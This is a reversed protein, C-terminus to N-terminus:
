LVRKLIKRKEWRSVPYMIREAIVCEITSNWCFHTLFMLWSRVSRGSPLYFFIEFYRRKSFIFRYTIGHLISVPHDIKWSIPWRGVSGVFGSKEELNENYLCWTRLISFRYVVSGSKGELNKNYLYLTRLISFRYIDTQAASLQMQPSM